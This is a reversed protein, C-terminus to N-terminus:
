LRPSTCRLVPWYADAKWKKLAAMLRLGSKALEYMYRAMVSLRNSSKSFAQLAKSLAM